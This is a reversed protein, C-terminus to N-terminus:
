TLINNNAVSADFFNAFSSGFSKRVFYKSQLNRLHIVFDNQNWSWHMLDNLILVIVNGNLKLLRMWSIWIQNTNERDFHTQDILFRMILTPNTLEVLNEVIELVKEKLDPDAADFCEFLDFLPDFCVNLCCNEQSLTIPFHCVKKLFFHCHIALILPDFLPSRNRFPRSSRAAVQM